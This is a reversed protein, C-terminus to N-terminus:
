GALATELSQLHARYHEARGVAHKYVPQRVQAASPTKIVGSARHFELCDEHFPLECYDLLARVHEETETVLEEYGVRYIQGPAFQLWHDVMDSYLGFYRGLDALDCAYGHDDSFYHQYISLCNDLPARHCLVIKAAPLLARFLGIRLFNHPLKDIVREAKDASSRLRGVYSQAFEALMEPGIDSVDAPFPKGTLRSVGEVFIRAHEVEGATAVLPHSALIQEVLTTGSRPMGLLLIPSRDTLAFPRCRGILDDNFAKKHQGFFLQQRGFSYEVTKRQLRNATQMYAFAQEYQRSHDLTIGLSYAILMRDRDAIDGSDCAAQMRQLEQQSRSASLLALGYHANGCHPDVSLAQRYLVSAEAADGCAATLRGMRALLGANEPLLKLARDRAASAADIRGRDALVSAHAAHADASNLDLALSKEISDQAEILLGQQHEILGLNFLADFDGPRSAAASRLHPLARDNRGARHHLMGLAYNARPQDPCSVLVGRLLSIAQPTKGSGSLQM